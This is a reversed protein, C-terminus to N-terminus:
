SELKNDEGGMERGKEEVLEVGKTVAPDCKETNLKEGDVNANSADPFIQSIFPFVKSFNEEPFREVDAAVKQPLLQM